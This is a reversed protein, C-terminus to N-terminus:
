KERSLFEAAVKGSFDIITQKDGDALVGESDIRACLESQNKEFQQILTDLFDPIDDARIGVMTHALASVLIIVQEHQSKPHYQKQRLMRMLGEGYTLQKQTAEDLDSSFQTFVEM